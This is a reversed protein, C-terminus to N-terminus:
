VANDLQMSSLAGRLAHLGRTVHNAVTRPSLGMISAAERYSLESFRILVLAERQRPPLQELAALLATRWERSEVEVDPSIPATSYLQERIREVTITRARIHRARAENLGITRVTRLLYSLLSGNGRLNKRNNWLRVLADQVMDKSADVSGSFEFAYRVLPTWYREAIAQLADSDDGRLRWALEVDGTPSPLPQTSPAASDSM